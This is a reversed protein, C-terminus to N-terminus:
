AVEAKRVDMKKVTEGLHREREILRLYYQVAKDHENAKALKQFIEKAADWKKERYLVVGQWYQERKEWTGEELNGPEGLPEYIEVRDRGLLVLDMPRTLMEEPKLVGFIDPGLLVRVGYQPAIRTLRESIEVAEGAYGLGGECFSGFVGLVLEGSEVGIRYDVVRHSKLDFDLNLNRLNQDLQLALRTADLPHSDGTYPPGMMARVGHHDCKEIYAGGDVLTRTVEELWHNIMEVYEEANLHELLEFENFFRCCIVTGNGKEGELALTHDSDVLGRFVKGSVRSGLISRLVRKRAGAETGAYVMGLAFSCIVALGSGVPSLYFAYLGGVYLISLLQLLVGAFVVVKLFPRSIDVTTWAIGFSLLFIFAYHIGNPIAAIEPRFRFFERLGTDIESFIGSAQLGAIAAGVVVGILISIKLYRSM